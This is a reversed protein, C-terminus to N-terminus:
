DDGRDLMLLRGSVIRCADKATPNDVFQTSMEFFPFM